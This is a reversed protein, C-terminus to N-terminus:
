KEEKQKCEREELELLPLVYGRKPNNMNELTQRAKGIKIFKVSKFEIEEKNSKLKDLYKQYHEQMEIKTM